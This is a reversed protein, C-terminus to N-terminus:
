GARGGNNFIGAEEVINKTYIEPLAPSM